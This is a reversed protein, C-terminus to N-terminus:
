LPNSYIIWGEDLMYYIVFILWTIGVLCGIIAGISDKLIRIRNYKHANLISIIKSILIIFLFITALILCLSSVICLIWSYNYIDYPIMSYHLLFKRLYIYDLGLLSIIGWLCLLNERITNSFIEKLWLICVFMLVIFFLFGFIIDVLDYEFRHSDYKKIEPANEIRKEKQSSIINGNEDYYYSEIIEGNMDYEAVWRAYGYKCVCLSDKESYSLIETKNGNDDYLALWKAVGNQPDICLNGNEDYTCVMVQELAENYRTEYRAYGVDSNVCLTKNENYYSLTLLLGRDNFEKEWFAVGNKDAVLNHKEDYAAYSLQSGRSDFKKEWKAYGLNGCCLNENIDVGRYEIQNGRCDYTAYYGYIGDSNTTPVDNKDYFHASIVRGREDSEYKVVEFGYNSKTYNGMSDFYAIKIINGLNDYSTKCIAYGESSECLENKNNYFRHETINGYDDYYYHIKHFGNITNCPRGNIDFYSTILTNELFQNLFSAYGFTCLTKNGYVDFLTMSILDGRDNYEAEWSAVGTNNSCVNWDAGFYNVQTINGVDDYVANWGSTGNLHNTLYGDISYIAQHTPHGWRDYEVTISAYGGANTCPKGSIGEYNNEIQNGRNDCKIYVKSYGEKGVWPKGNADLISISLPFGNKDYEIIRQAANDSNYCLKENQDYFQEKVINGWADCENTIKSYMRSNMTYKGSASYFKLTSINGWDDYEYKMIAVGDKRQTVNGDLDYYTSVLIRGLSDNEFVVKHIGDSDTIRSSYINNSNNEHYSISTIYGLSNRTLVYRKIPSKSITKAEYPYVANITTHYGSADMATVGLFDIITAREQGKNSIKWRLLTKGSKNCYDINKVIGSSHEYEIKLIAFRNNEEQDSHEQLQGASNVYDVRSLRWTITDNSIWFPVRRYEFRYSRSRHEYTTPELEIIGEPIGWRDVYDAYYKYIPQTYYWYSLGICGLMFIISTIIIRKKRLYRTHRDWLVDFRLDLIKALVKILTQQKGIENVNIGLPEDSFKNFVPHFCESESNESHPTGDVIVPIIKNERGLERFHEIELGVWDSSASNPSCIVILFHSRELEKRLSSSLGGASLDTKDRFIPKIRKPLRPIEKRITSPISYRELNNQLWIAWKEDERKYSIFASYEFNDQM